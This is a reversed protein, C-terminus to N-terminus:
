GRAPGGGGSVGPEGAGGGAALVMLPSSFDVDAPGREARVAAGAFRHRYGTWARDAIQAGAGSRALVALETAAREVRRDLEPDAWDQPGAFVSTPATLARLYAFLPRMQEDVVMAHRATGATAALVTPTAVLLDDDLVDVFSKFLGSIGAKYVPAAAVVADAGAVRDIAEQLRPGPFGAVLAKAVETALPGLEVVSATAATGAGRLVDLTKQAIREGLLRTSSPDSLGASVVVLRLPETTSVPTGRETTETTETTV